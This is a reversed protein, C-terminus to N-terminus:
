RWPSLLRYIPHRLTPKAEWVRDEMEKWIEAVEEESLIDSELPKYRYDLAWDEGRKMIAKIGPVETGKQFKFPFVDVTDMMDQHELIFDTTEEADKHSTGPYGIMTFFHVKIGATHCSQLLELPDVLGKKNMEKRGAHSVTELGFYLKRCGSQSLKETFSRDLFKKEMIVYAEWDIPWNRWSKGRANGFFKAISEMTSLPMSEDTFKFNGIDHKRYLNVIDQIVLQASRIGSFGKRNWGLPIACFKCKRHYCGRASNLPLYNVGWYRGIPFGSFSPTPIKDPDIKELIDVNCLIDPGYMLNRVETFKEIRVDMSTALEKLAYDGQYIGFYDAVNFFPSDIERWIRSIINGGMVVKGKLGARKIRWCLEFAPILQAPAAISLAIIDPNEYTLWPIINTEYYETFPSDKKMARLVQASSRYSYEQFNFGLQLNWEGNYKEAIKQLRKEASFYPKNLTKMQEISTKDSFELKDLGAMKIGHFNNVVDWNLDRVVIEHDKLGGALTPLGLHPSGTILSWGPPFLLAIKM